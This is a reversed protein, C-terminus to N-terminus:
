RYVLRRTSIIWLLQTCGTLLESVVASVCCWCLVVGCGTLMVSSTLMVVACCLSDVAGEACCLDVAGADYWLWDFYWWVVPLCWLVVVVDVCWWVM